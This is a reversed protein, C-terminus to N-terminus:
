SYFREAKNQIATPVTTNEIMGKTAIEISRQKCIYKIIALLAVM